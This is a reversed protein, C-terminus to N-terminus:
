QTAGKKQIKGSTVESEPKHITLGSSLQGVTRQWGQHEDQSENPQEKRKSDRKDKQKGQRV